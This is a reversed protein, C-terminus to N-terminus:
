SIEAASHEFAAIGLYYQLNSWRDTWWQKQDLPAQVQVSNGFQDTLINQNFNRVPKKIGPVSGPVRSITTNNEFGHGATAFIPGVPTVVSVFKTVPVDDVSPAM